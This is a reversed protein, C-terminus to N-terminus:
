KYLGNFFNNITKIAISGIEKSEIMREVQQKTKFEAKHVENKDPTIRTGRPFTGVFIYGFSSHNDSVCKRKEVFKIPADFGLEEQLEEHAAEEPTQGSRVHGVATVTWKGPSHRKKYSRQQLLLNGNEDLVLVGVERHLLNKLHVERKPMSDVVADYENIVDILEREDDIAGSKPM